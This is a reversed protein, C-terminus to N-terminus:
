LEFDRMELPILMNRLIDCKAQTVHTVDGILSFGYAKPHNQNSGRFLPGYLSIFIFISTLQLMIPKM